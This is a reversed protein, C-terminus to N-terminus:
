KAGREVNAVIEDIATHLQNQKTEIKVIQANLKEVNVKKETNITM